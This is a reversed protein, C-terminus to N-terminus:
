LGMEALTRASEYVPLGSALLIVHEEAAKAILEAGPTVHDALVVCAFERLEAVAIVNMHVQVTIWVQGQGGNGMAWSLLDTCYVGTIEGSLDQGETLVQWGTKAVLDSVKM